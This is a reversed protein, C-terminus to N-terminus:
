GSSVQWSLATAFLLFGAGLCMKRTGNNYYSWTLAPGLFFVFLPLCLCAILPPLGLFQSPQFVLGAFRRDTLYTVFVWYSYRIEVAIWVGAIWIYFKHLTLKIILAEVLAKGFKKESRYLWHKADAPDKKKSMRALRSTTSAAMKWLGYFMCNNVNVYKFAKESLHKPDNMPDITAIIIVLLSVGYLALFVYIEFNLLFMSALGIIAVELAMETFMCALFTELSKHAPHLVKPITCKYTGIGFGFVMLAYPILPMLNAHHPMVILAGAVAVGGLLYFIISLIFTALPSYSMIIGFFYATIYATSQFLHFSVISQNENMKCQFRLVHVINAKPSNECHKM